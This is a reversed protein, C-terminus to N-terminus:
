KPANSFLWYYKSAASDWDGQMLMVRLGFPVPVSGTIRRGRRFSGSPGLYFREGNSSILTWRKETKILLQCGRAELWEAFMPRLTTHKKTM